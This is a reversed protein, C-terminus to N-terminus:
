GMGERGEWGEVKVPCTAKVILRGTTLVGKVHLNSCDSRDCRYGPAAPHDLMRPVSLIAKETSPLLRGEMGQQLCAFRGCSFAVTNAVQPMGEVTEVSQCAVWRVLCIRPVKVLAIAFNKLVTLKRTM